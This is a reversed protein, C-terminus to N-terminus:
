KTGSGEALFQLAVFPLIIRAIDHKIVEELLRGSNLRDEESILVLVGGSSLTCFIEQFSVDFSIPAFQLTRSNAELISTSSQWRILNALARHPMAVGKPRGTSGSTFLVYCLDDSTAKDLLTTSESGILDQILLVQTDVHSFTQATNSDCIIFRPRADTVMATKRDAPYEADFPVYAAGARLIALCSFILDPSRELCLGVLDGQKIGRDILANAISASRHDVQGYTFSSGRHVLAIADPAEKFQSVLPELVNDLDEAPM